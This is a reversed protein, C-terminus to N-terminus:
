PRLSGVRSGSSGNKFIDADRSVLTGRRKDLALHKQFSRCPYEGDLGIVGPQNAGHQVGLPHCRWAQARTRRSDGVRAVAEICRTIDILAHDTGRIGGVDHWSISVPQCEATTVLIHQVDNVEGLIRDRLPPEERSAHVSTQAHAAGVLLVGTAVANAHPPWMQIRLACVQTLSTWTFAIAAQACTAARLKLDLRPAARIRRQAPTSTCISPIARINPSAMRKANPSPQHTRFILRERQVVVNTLANSAM